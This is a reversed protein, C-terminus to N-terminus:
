SKQSWIKYQMFFGILTLVGGALIVTNGIQYVVSPLDLLLHFIFFSLGIAVTLFGCSVYLWAKGMIGGKFIFLLRAVIYTLGIILALGGINYVFKWVYWADIM